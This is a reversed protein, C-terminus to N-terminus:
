TSLNELHCLRYDKFILVIAPRLEYINEPFAADGSSSRTIFLKNLSMLLYVSLPTSGAFVNNKLIHDFLTSVHTKNKLILYIDSTSM